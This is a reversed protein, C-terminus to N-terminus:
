YREGNDAPRHSRGVALPKIGRSNLHKIARDRLDEDGNLLVYAYYGTDDYHWRRRGDGVM